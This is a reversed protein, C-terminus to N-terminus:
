GIWEKGDDTLKYYKLRKDKAEPNEYDVLVTKYWEGKQQNFQSPLAVSVGNNKDDKFIRFGKITLVGPGGDVLSFTVDAFGLLKGPKNLPWARAKDVYLM